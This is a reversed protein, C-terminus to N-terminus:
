FEDDFAALAADLEKTDKEIEPEIKKAEPMVRKEEVLPEQKYAGEIPAPANFASQTITGGVYYGETLGLMENTEESNYLAETIKYDNEDLYSVASFTLVPNNVPKNKYLQQFGLGTKVGYSPANHQGLLGFYEKLPKLSKTNVKILYTKTLDSPLAVVMNKVVRCAIGVRQGDNFSGMLSKPCGQCKGNNQPSKANISAMVGDNSYCLPTSSDKDNQDYKKSQDFCQRAESPTVKIIIAEIAGGNNLVKMDKEGVTKASFMKSNLSIRNYEKFDPQFAVEQLKADKLFSPKNNLFDLSM